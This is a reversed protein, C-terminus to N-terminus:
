DRAKLQFDTSRVQSKMCFCVAAKIKLCTLPKRAEM